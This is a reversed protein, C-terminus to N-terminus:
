IFARMFKCMKIFGFALYRAVLSMAVPFVSMKRGGVLYDLAESGRRRRNRKHNQHKKHDQWGFYVGIISCSLLMVLFVLYDPWSFHMLSNRVGLIDMIEQARSLSYQSQSLFNKNM